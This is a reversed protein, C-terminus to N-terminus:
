REFRIEDLYFTMGSENGVSAATWAFGGSIKRLDIGSVDIVYQKWQQTLTVPGIQAIGTDPRSGKIGGVSFQAIEEKGKEGRAWFTVRKVGELNFGGPINGWNNEPHQWYVGAWGFGQSRKASYTFQICTKGDAPDIKSRDNLKIDGYDGMWGSPVFHNAPSRYDTYIYFFRRTDFRLGPGDTRPPPGDFVIISPTKGVSSDIRPNFEVGKVLAHPLVALAISASKGAADEAHVASVLFLGLLNAFLLHRAKMPSGWFYPM